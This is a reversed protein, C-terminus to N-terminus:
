QQHLIKLSANDSGSSIFCLQFQTNNSVFKPGLNSINTYFVSTDTKQNLFLNPYFQNTCIM